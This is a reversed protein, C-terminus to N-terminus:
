FGFVTLKCRWAERCINWEACLGLSEDLSNPRSFASDSARWRIGLQPHESAIGRGEENRFARKVSPVLLHALNKSIAASGFGRFSTVRASICFRNRVSCFLSKAVKLMYNCRNESSVKRHKPAANKAVRGRPIRHGLM